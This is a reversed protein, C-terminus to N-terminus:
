EAYFENLLPQTICEITRVQDDTLDERWSGPTGKRYFKGEGKKEEPINEWSRKEIARELQGEDMELELEKYIRKMTGLTDAVLEEYRVLAKPGTHAEYAKKASSVQQLYVKANMEVFADPDSDALSEKRWGVKNEDVWSHLWGGEKAADLTSAGVDRPDRLLLIMRSEPLAEMLLPAGMSGNPEKILLYDDPGLRPRAYKAGDLVFNRISKIWGKRTADAMVFDPRQRHSQQARAYFEGFLRGVLPEEWIKHHKMDGMIIRLWTSGTRGAGFIWVVNEPKVGGPGGHRGPKSRLEALTLPVERYKGALWRRISQPMSRATGRL